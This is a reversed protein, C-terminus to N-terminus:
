AACATLSVPLAQKSVHTAVDTKTLVLMALQQLTSSGNARAGTQLGIQSLPRCCVVVAVRSVM